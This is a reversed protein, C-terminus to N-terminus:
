PLPGRFPTTDPSAIRVVPVLVAGFVLAITSGAGLMGYLMRLWTPEIDRLHTMWNAIGEVNLRFLAGLGTIIAVEYILFTYGRWQQARDLARYGSFCFHSLQARTQTKM